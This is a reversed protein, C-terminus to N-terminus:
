VTAKSMGEKTFLKDHSKSQFQSSFLISPQHFGLIDFIINPRHFFLTSQHWLPLNYQPEQGCFKSNYHTTSFFPPLKM